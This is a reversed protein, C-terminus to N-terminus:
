KKKKKVTVPSSLPVLLPARGVIDYKALIIKLAQTQKQLQGDMSWKSNQGLLKKQVGFKEEKREKKKKTNTM